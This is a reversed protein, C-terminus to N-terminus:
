VYRVNEESQQLILLLGLPSFGAAEETTDRLCLAARTGNRVSIECVYDLIYLKLQVRGEIEDYSHVSPFDLFGVVSLAVVTFSRPYIIELQLAATIFCANGCYM